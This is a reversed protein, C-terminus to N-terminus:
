TGEGKEGTCLCLFNYSTKKVKYYLRFIITGIKKGDVEIDFFPRPFEKKSNGWGPHNGHQHGKGEYRIDHKDSM